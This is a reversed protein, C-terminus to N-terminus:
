RTEEADTETRDTDDDPTPLPARPRPLPPKPAADRRRNADVVSEYAHGSLPTHRHEPQSCEDCSSSPDFPNRSATTGEVAVAQWWPGAELVRAPTHTKADCAIWTLAVAVDRRPRNALGPRAMLTRLSATPWDPRLQNVAAAIRTKEHDNM